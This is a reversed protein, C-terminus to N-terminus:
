VKGVDKRTLGTADALEQTIQSKTAAKAKTEAMPTREGFLVQFSRKRERYSRLNSHGRAITLRMNGSFCASKALFQSFARFNGGRHRELGCGDCFFGLFIATSRTPHEQPHNKECSLRKMGSYTTMAVQGNPCVATLAAACSICCPLGASSAAM